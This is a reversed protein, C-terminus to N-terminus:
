NQQGSPGPEEDDSAEGFSQSSDPDEESQGALDGNYDEDEDLAIERIEELSDPSKGTLRQFMCWM